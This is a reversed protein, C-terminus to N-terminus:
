VVYSCHSKAVNGIRSTTWTARSREFLEQEVRLITRVAACVNGAARPTEAFYNAHAIDNRLRVIANFDRKLSMTTGPILQKKRIITAEDAFQSFSIESVFGDEKKARGIATQICVGRDKSLLGLWGTADDAGWEQEIRETM